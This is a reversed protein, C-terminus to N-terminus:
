KRDRNLKEYGARVKAVFAPDGDVYRKDLQMSKLDDKTLREAMEGTDENVIAPAEGALQMVEELMSVVSATTAMTSLTKYNDASLTMRAWENVRETRQGGHEGLVKMEADYDPLESIRATVYSEMLEEFTKQPIGHDFAAQKFFALMQDDEAIEINFNDNKTVRDPLSYTYGDSSEPVGEPKNAALEERVEKELVEKRTFLRGEASKRANAQGEAIKEFNLAGDKVM